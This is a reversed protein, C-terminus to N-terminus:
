EKNCSKEDLSPEPSRRPLREPNCAWRLLDELMVAAEAIPTLSNTKVGTELAAIITKVAKEPGAELPTLLGLKREEEDRERNVERAAEMLQEFTVLPM